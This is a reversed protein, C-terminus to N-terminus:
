IDEAAIRAESREAIVRILWQAQDVVEFRAAQDRRTNELKKIRGEEITGQKCEEQRQM